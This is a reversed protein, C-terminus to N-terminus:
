RRRALGLGALGLVLLGIPAPVPITSFSTLLPADSPIASFQSIAPSAAETFVIFQDAGTTTRFAFDVTFDNVIELDDGPNLQGFTGSTDFDAFLSTAIMGSEDFVGADNNFLSRVAVVGLIENSFQLTGETEVVQSPQGAPDFSFFLADVTIDSLTTRSSLALEGLFDAGVNAQFGDLFFTGLDAFNLQDGQELDVNRSLNTDPNLEIIPLAMTPAAAFLLGATLLPTLLRM